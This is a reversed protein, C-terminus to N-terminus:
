KKLEWIGDLFNGERRTWEGVKKIQEFECWGNEVSLWLFDALEELNHIIIREAKQYIDDDLINEGITYLENEKNFFAITKLHCHKQIAEHIYCDEENDFLLGDESEYKIIM